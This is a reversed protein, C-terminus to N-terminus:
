YVGVKVIRYIILANGEGLTLIVFDDSPTVLVSSVGTLESLKDQEESSDSTQLSHKFVLHGKSERIFYNLAGDEEATVFLHNGDSTLALNGAGALALSSGLESSSGASSDAGLDVTQTLTQVHQYEGTNERKFVMLSGTGSCAVYLWANDKSVLLSQPNVLADLGQKRQSITQKWVLNGSVERKFISISNDEFASAFVQTGDPSVTVGVAGSLGYEEGGLLKDYSTFMQRLQAKGGDGLDFVSLSNSKYGTVLLQRPETTIAVDWAGLLGLTDLDGIPREDKFIRESSLGDYLLQHFSWIHDEGRKLVLLASGYFSVIYAYQGDGSLVLNSAGALVDMESSLNDLSLDGSRIVQRLTPKFSEDLDFVAVSDDDGSAILLQTEDPTIVAAHANDLGEVGGEGQRLIHVPILRIEMSSQDKNSVDHTIASCASLM